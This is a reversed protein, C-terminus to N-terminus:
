SNESEQTVIRFLPAEPVTLGALNLVEGARESVGTLIIDGGKKKCERLNNVMARLGGSSLYTVDGLNLKINRPFEISQSRAQLASDLASANDCSVSGSVSVKLVDAQPDGLRIELM